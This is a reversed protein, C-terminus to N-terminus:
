VVVSGRTDTKGWKGTLRNGRDIAQLCELFTEIGHRVVHQVLGSDFQPGRDVREM